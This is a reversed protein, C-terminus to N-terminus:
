RTSRRRANLKRRSKRGAYWAWIGTGIAASATAATATVQVVPPVAVLAGKVATWWGVDVTIAYPFHQVNFIREQGKAFISHQLTVILDHSGVETPDVRWVWLAPAVGASHQWEEGLREIKFFAGVLTARARSSIRVDNSFVVPADKTSRVLNQDSAGAPSISLKAEYSRGLSMFQTVSFKVRAQMSDAELMLAAVNNVGVGLNDAGDQVSKQLKSLELKARELDLSTPQSASGVMRWAAFDSMQQMQRKIEKISDVIEGLEPDRRIDPPDPLDYRLAPQLEIAYFIMFMGILASCWGLALSLREINIVKMKPFIELGCPSKVVVKRPLCPRAGIGYLALRHPTPNGRRPRNPCCAVKAQGTSGSKYCVISLWSEPNLPM